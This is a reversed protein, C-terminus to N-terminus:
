SIKLLHMSTSFVHFPPPLQLIRVSFDHEIQKANYSFELPLFGVQKQGAHRYSQYFCFCPSLLHSVGLTGSSPPTSICHGSGRLSESLWSGPQSQLSQGQGSLLSQCGLMQWKAHCPVGCVVLGPAKQCPPDCDVTYLKSGLGFLQAM